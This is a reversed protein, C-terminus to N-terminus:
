IKNINEVGNGKTTQAGIDSVDSEPLTVVKSQKLQEQLEDIRKLADSYKEETIPEVNKIEKAISAEDNEMTKQNEAEVPNDNNEVVEEITEIGEEAKKEEIKEELSTQLQIAEDLTLKKGILNNIKELVKNTAM